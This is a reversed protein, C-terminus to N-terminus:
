LDDKETTWVAKIYSHRRSYLLNWKTKGNKCFKVRGYHKIWKNQKPRIGKRSLVNKVDFAIKTERWKVSFIRKEQCNDHHVSWINFFDKFNKGLLNIWFGSYTKETMEKIEFDDSSGKLPCPFPRFPTHNSFYLNLVAVLNLDLKKAQGKLIKPM